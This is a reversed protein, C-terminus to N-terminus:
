PNPLFIYIQQLSHFSTFYIHFLEYIKVTMQLRLEFIFKEYISWMMESRVPSRFEVFQGREWHPAEYSLQYPMATTDCLDRTRIGRQLGSKKLSRRELHKLQFTLQSSWEESDDAVAPGIKIIEYISWMMESRMPSIFETFQGREWTHSWLETPLADCPYRPPWPNSDRQLGSKELSRIELRKFQFILKSSWEESQDVIAAWIHIIEYISLM